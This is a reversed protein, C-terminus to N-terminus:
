LDIGAIARFNLRNADNAIGYSIGTTIRFWGTSFSLTPGAGTGRLDADPLRDADAGTVFIEFGGRFRRVFEYSIGGSFEPELGSATGFQYEATCNVIANLPGFDRTLILKTELNGSSSLNWMRSYEVCIVPDVIFRGPSILEYLGEIGFQGFSFSDGPYQKGFEQNVGIAARDSISYEIEFQQNLYHENNSFTPTNFDSCSELETAGAAETEFQDSWLYFRDQAFAASFSLSISFTISATVLRM